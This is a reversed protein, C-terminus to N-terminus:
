SKPLLDGYQENMQKKAEEIDIDGPMIGAIFKIAADEDGLLEMYLESYAQTEVFGAKVEPTKTFRRGDASKEGYAMVIIEKFSEMIEKTNHSAMIKRLNGELGGEKGMELDILEAKTLGFWFEEERKNGDFDEYKIVKKLM